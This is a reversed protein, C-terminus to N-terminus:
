RAVSSFPVKGHSNIPVGIVAGGSDSSWARCRCPCPGPCPDSRGPGCPCSRAVSVGVAAPTAAIAPCPADAGKDHEQRQEREEVPAAAAAAVHVGGRRRRAARGAAARCARCRARGRRRGRCRRAAAPAGASRAVGWYRRESPSRRPGPRRAREDRRSVGVVAGAVRAGPRTRSREPQLSCPRRQRVAPRHAAARAAPGPRRPRGPVAIDPCARWTGDGHVRRQPVDRGSRRARRRHRLRRVPDRPHPDRRRGGCRGGRFRRKILTRYRRARVYYADYYGPWLVYTGIMMRRKVERGFGAARTHEYLETIDRGPERLGYRVGDYRALNSSAEAPAVIYYAPPATNRIRCRSTSSRPAPRRWGRRARRGLREIEPPMGDLRYEKPIGINLGKVGRSVAAEFDARRARGLDHGESRPRGHAGLSPATACRAPSRAPRISRPPSPSSVGVRAAATPRSSASPAPSPPPSASRAAPTPRPLASASGRRSPRRRGARPAAPCSIAFGRGGRLGRLRARELRPAAM